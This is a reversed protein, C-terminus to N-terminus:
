IFDREQQNVERARLGEPIIVERHSKVLRDWPIKNPSFFKGRPNKPEADVWVAFIQALYM